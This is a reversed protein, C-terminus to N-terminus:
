NILSIRLPFTSVLVFMSKADSPVQRPPRHNKQTGPYTVRSEKEIFTDEVTTFPVGERASKQQAPPAARRALRCQRHLDGVLLPVGSGILLKLSSHKLPVKGQHSVQQGPERRDPTCSTSSHPATNGRRNKSQLPEVRHKQHPNM